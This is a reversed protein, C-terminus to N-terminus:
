TARVEIVSSLKFEPLDLQRIRRNWHQEKGRREWKRGGRAGGWLWEKNGGMILAAIFPNRKWGLVTPSCSRENKRERKRGKGNQKRGLTVQNLWLTHFQNPSMQMSIGYLSTFHHTLIVESIRPSVTANPLCLICYLSSLECVWQESIWGPFLM